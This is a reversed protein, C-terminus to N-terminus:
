WVLPRGELKQPMQNPILRSLHLSFRDVILRTEAHWKDYTDGEFLRTSQSYCLAAPWRMFNSNHLPYRWWVYSLAEYGASGDLSHTSHTRQIPYDFERDKLKTFRMSQGQLTDNHLFKALAEIEEQSVTPEDAKRANQLRSNPIM